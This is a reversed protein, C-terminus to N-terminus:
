KDVENLLVFFFLKMQQPLQDLLLTGGTKLGADIRDALADGITEPTGSHHEVNDSLRLKPILQNKTGGGITASHRAKQEDAM